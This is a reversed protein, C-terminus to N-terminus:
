VPTPSLATGIPALVGAAHDITFGSVTNSTLNPVYLFNKSPHLALSVPRPSTTFVSVPLAQLDGTTKEALGRISNDGPGVVYLFALTPATSSGGSGLCGSLVTIIFFSATIVLARMRHKRM